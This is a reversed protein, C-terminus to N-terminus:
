LSMQNLRIAKWMPSMDSGYSTMEFEFKEKLLSLVYELLKLEQLSWCVLELAESPAELGNLSNYKALMKLFILEEPLVSMSVSLAPKYLYIKGEGPKAMHYISRTLTIIDASNNGKLVIFACLNLWDEFHGMPSKKRVEKICKYMLDTWLNRQDELFWYWTKSVMRANMLSDFDLYSFISLLPNGTLSCSMLFDTDFFTEATMVNGYYPYYQPEKKNMIADPKEGTVDATLLGNIKDLKLDKPLNSAMVKKMDKNYSEYKLIIKELTKVKRNTADLIENNETQNKSNEIRPIKARKPEFGQSPLNRKKARSRTLRM